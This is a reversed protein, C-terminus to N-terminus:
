VLKNFHEVSVVEMCLNPCNLAHYLHLSSQKIGVDCFYFEKLFGMMSSLDHCAARSSERYAFCHIFISKALRGWPIRSCRDLCISTLRTPPELLFADFDTGFGLQSFTIHRLNVLKRLGCLSLFYHPANNTTDNYSTTIDIHIRKLSHQLTKSELFESYNFSSITLRLSELRQFSNCEDLTFSHNSILLDLRILHSFTAKIEDSIHQVSCQLTTLHPFSSVYWTLPETQFLTTVHQFECIVKDKIKPLIPAYYDIRLVPFKLQLVMTEHQFGTMGRWVFEQLSSFQKLMEILEYFQECNKFAVNCCQFRVSTLGEFFKDCEEALFLANWQLLQWAHFNYATSTEVTVHKLKQFRPLNAFIQKSDKQEFGFHLSTLNPMNLQLTQFSAFNIIPQFRLQEVHHLLLSPWRLKMDSLTGRKIEINRQTKVGGLESTGPDSGSFLALFHLASNSKLLRAQYFEKNILCLRRSSKLTFFPYLQCVCCSPILM